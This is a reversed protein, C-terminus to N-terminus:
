DRRSSHTQHLCYVVGGKQRQRPLPMRSLAPRYRGDGRHCSWTAVLTERWQRLALQRCAPLPATERALARLYSHIWRRNQVEIDCFQAALVDLWAHPSSSCSIWIPARRNYVISRQCCAKKVRQLSQRTRSEGSGSSDTAPSDLLDTSIKSSMDRIRTLCFLRICFLVYKRLFFRPKGSENVRHVYRSFPSNSDYLFSVYFPFLWKPYGDCAIVWLWSGFRVCGECHTWAKFGSQDGVQVEPVIAFRHRGISEAGLQRSTSPM